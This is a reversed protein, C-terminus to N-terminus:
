NKYLFYHSLKIEVQHSHKGVKIYWIMGLRGSVLRLPKVLYLGSKKKGM